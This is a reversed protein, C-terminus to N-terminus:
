SSPNWTSNSCYKTNMSLKRINLNTSMMKVSNMDVFCLLHGFLQTVSCLFITLLLHNTSMSPHQPIGKEIANLDVIHARKKVFGEFTKALDEDAYFFEQVKEVLQEDTFSDDGKADSTKGEGGKGESEDDKPM